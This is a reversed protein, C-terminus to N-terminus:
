ALCRSTTTLSTRAKPPNVVQQGSGTGTGASDSGSGILLGLRGRLPSRSISIPWCCSFAEAVGAPMRDAGYVLGIAEHLYMKELLNPSALLTLENLIFYFGALAGNL